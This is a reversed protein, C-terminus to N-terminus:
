SAIIYKSSKFICSSINGGLDRLGNVAIKKGRGSM